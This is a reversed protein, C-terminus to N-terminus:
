CEDMADGDAAVDKAAALADVLQQWNTEVYKDADAMMDDAKAILQELLTKDGQVLGLGWIGELLNDWAANVQEQTAETDAMVAKAETLAKQFAAVASDTVGTTDLTEAYAITKELLTKDVDGPEPTPEPQGLVEVATSYAMQ